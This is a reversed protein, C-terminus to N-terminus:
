PGNYQATALCLWKEAIDVLNGISGGSSLYYKKKGVVHGTELSGYSM